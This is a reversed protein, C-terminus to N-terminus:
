AAAWLHPLGDLPYVETARGVRVATLEELREVFRGAQRLLRHYPVPTVPHWCGAAQPLGLAVAEAHERERHPAFWADFAGKTFRDARDAFVYLRDAGLGVSGSIVQADSRLRLAPLDALLEDSATCDVVLDAEALATQVEAVESPLSVAYGRVRASPNSANLQAALATSKLAGVEGLTLRHRVGNGVEYRDHDVVFLLRVGMRVLADAVISGLAGAGILVVTLERLERCLRGRHGIVDPHWNETTPVWDLTRAHGLAKAFDTKDRRTRTRPKEKGLAPLRLAQWHMVSTGEGFRAPIPTGVLLLAGPVGRLHRWVPELLERPDLGQERAATLLEPGSAPAQWPGAVPLADLRLWAARQHGDLETVYTGWAPHVVDRGDLGRWVRVAEAGRERDGIRVLEALGVRPADQWALLSSADEYVALTGTRQGKTKYDPLEFPEGVRHLRGTAADRLWGLARDVHWVVRDYLDPPEDYEAARAMALKHTSSATCLYGSRVDWSPERRGNFDQHGFTATIVDGEAAPYIRVAESEPAVTVVWDSATPVDDTPQADLLDLRVRLGWWTGIPVVTPAWSETVAVGAWAGLEAEAAWLALPPEGLPEPRQRSM